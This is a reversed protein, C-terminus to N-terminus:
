IAATTTGGLRPVITAARSRESRNGVADVAVVFYEVTLRKTFNRDVYRPNSVTTVQQPDKGAERRWVEYIVGGSGGRDPARRWKLRLALPETQPRLDPAAPPRPATTDRETRVKMVSSPDSLEAGNWAVVRYRYTTLPELSLDRTSQASGVVRGIRQWEGRERKQIVFRKASPLPQWEIKVATSSLARSRAAPKWRGLLSWRLRHDSYYDSTGAAQKREYATDVGAGAIRTRTFIYDVGGFPSVEYVSDRFRRKVLARWWRQTLRHGKSWRSRQANFDGGIIANRHHQPWKRALFSDVRRVWGKRYRRSLDRSRLQRSTHFHVNAVPYTVGTRRERVLAVANRKVERLLGQAGHRKRFSTDIYHRKGVRKMTRRNILIATERTLVKDKKVDAPSRGAPAAVSYSNSTRKKLLRAVKTSAAKTVEQLLLIDPAHPALRDLRRVFAKLDGSHANDGANWAEELNATVVLVQRARPRQKV